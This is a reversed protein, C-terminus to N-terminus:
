PLANPAYRTRWGELIYTQGDPATVSVQIRLAESAPVSGLAAAQISISAQYNELGPLPQGAQDTIGHMAYGQYDNVNDYPRTNGAEPGLAEPLSACTAASTASEAAADQVDCWSFAARRVEELLAEAVALAQRRLMPDASGRVTQSYAVLVGALGVAVIVVFVILEILTVGRQYRGLCGADISM